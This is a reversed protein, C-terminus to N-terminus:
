ITSILLAENYSDINDSIWSPEYLRETIFRIICDEGDFSIITSFKKHPFNGKFYKEWQGLTMIAIQLLEIPNNEAIEEYYDNLHIHNYSAEFGTRDQFFQNPIFKEPLISSTNQKVLICGDWEMFELSSLEDTFNIRKRDSSNLYELYEKMKKNTRVITNM